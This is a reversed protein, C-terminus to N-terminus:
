GVMKKKKQREEGGKSKIKPKKKTWEIENQKAIERRVRKTM